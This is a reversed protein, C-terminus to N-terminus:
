IGELKKYADTAKDKMNLLTYVKALTSWFAPDKEKAAEVQELYPLAKKFDELYSKDKAIEEKKKKNKEKAYADENENQKKVGMNLYAAGLNYLADTYDAKIAVAKNFYEIAKDYNKEGFYLVGVNYQLVENEPAASAAEIFVSLAEGVRDSEIYIQAKNQLIWSLPIYQSKSYKDLLALAKNYVGRALNLQDVAKLSDTKDLAPKKKDKSALYAAKKDKFEFLLSDYVTKFPRAQTFLINLQYTLLDQTEHKKAILIDLSKYADDFRKANYEAVFRNYYTSLTDPMLEIATNFKEIAEEYKGQSSLTAGQNYINGWGNILMTRANKKETDSLKGLELAKRAALSMEKYKSLENMILAKYYYANANEPNKAIEKDIFENAKDYEKQSFYLKASTYDKSSFFQANVNSIMFMVCVTFVSLIKTAVSSRM